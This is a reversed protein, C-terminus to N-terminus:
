LPRPLKQGLRDKLVISDAIQAAVFTVEGGVTRMETENGTCATRDNAEILEDLCYFPPNCMSADLLPMSAATALGIPNVSLLSSTSLNSMFGAEINRSELPHSAAILSLLPGRRLLGDTSVMCGRLTSIIDESCHLVKQCNNLLPLLTANLITQYSDSDEVLFLKINSELCNASVNARALDLANKNIDSAIFDMNFMKTGLLPYIAIPGAGIDGIIKNV